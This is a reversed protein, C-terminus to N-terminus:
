GSTSEKVFRCSLAGLPGFDAHFVDGAAAPLARTFSGSMVIQGAELVVGHSSLKNVLWAVANAPHNLVAAAVGSEEIVTNRYLLASVWRLDVADPAVPRGGLVLGADAANDAITDVITRTHGTAPDAMEIRSDLIELAPTVYETARLVDFITCHPGQLSAGLVFALEVELRPKIFRDLPIDAGDAFLMPDLLAGYDPESIGLSQQMVQSTLGVKRGIVRQGDAAKRDVWSKQVAYADEVAMEPHQLSLQRIPVRTREAEHLRHAIDEIDSLPLTM